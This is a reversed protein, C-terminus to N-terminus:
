NRATRVSSAAPLVRENFYLLSRDRLWAADPEGAGPNAAALKPPISRNGSIDRAAVSATFVPLPGPASAPRPAFDEEEPNRMIGIIDINKLQGDAHFSRRVLQTATQLVRRREDPGRKEIVFRITATRYANNGARVQAVDVSLM